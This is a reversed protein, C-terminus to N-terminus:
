SKYHVNVLEPFAKALIKHPPIDDSSEKSEATDNAPPKAHAPAAERKRKKRNTNFADEVQVLAAKDAAAAKDDVAPKADYRTGRWSEDGLKIGASLKQMFDKKFQEHWEKMEKESLKSDHDSKDVMDDAYIQAAHQDDVLM